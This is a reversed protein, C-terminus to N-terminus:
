VKFFINLYRSVKGHRSVSLFFKQDKLQPPFLLGCHSCICPSTEEETPLAPWALCSKAKASLSSSIILPFVGRGLTVPQLTWDRQSHKGEPGLNTMGLLPITKALPLPAQRAGPKPVRLILTWGEFWGEDWASSSYSKTTKGMVWGVSCTLHHTLSM